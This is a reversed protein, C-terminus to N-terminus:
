QNKALRTLSAALSKKQKANLAIPRCALWNRSESHTCIILVAGDDVATQLYPQLKVRQEETLRFPRGLELPNIRTIEEGAAKQAAQWHHEIIKAKM